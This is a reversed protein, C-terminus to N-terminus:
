FVKGLEAEVEENENNRMIEREQGFSVRTQLLINMGKTGVSIRRLLLKVFANAFMALVIEGIEQIESRWTSM